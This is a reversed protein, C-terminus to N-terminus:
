EQDDVIVLIVTVGQLLSQRAVTVSIDQLRGVAAFRQLQQGAFRYVQNQEVHQHWSRLMGTIM